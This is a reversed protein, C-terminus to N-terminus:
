GLRYTRNRSHTANLKQECRFQQLVQRGTLQGLLQQEQSCAVSSCSAARLVPLRRKRWLQWTEM